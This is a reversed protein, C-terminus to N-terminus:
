VHARGIQGANGQGPVCVTAGNETGAPVSFRATHEVRETSRTRMGPRWGAVHELRHYTADVMGGASAVGPDIVCRTHVDSGTTPRVPPPVSGPSGARPPPAARPAGSDPPRKGTHRYFADASANRQARQRARGRDLADRKEPDILLEYAQRVQKFRDALEPDGQTRDPHCERALQRFAKKIDGISADAPLGLIKYPDM